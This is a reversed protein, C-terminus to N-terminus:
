MPTPRHSPALRIKGSHRHSSTGPSVPAFNRPSSIWKMADSDTQPSIAAAYGYKKPAASPVPASYGASSRGPAAVSASQDSRSRSSRDSHGYRASAAATGSAPTAASASAPERLRQASKASHPAPSTPRATATTSIRRMWRLMASRAGATRGGSSASPTLRAHPARHPWGRRRDQGKQRTHRGPLTETQGRVSQAERSKVVLS